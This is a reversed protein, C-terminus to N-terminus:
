GRAGPANMAVVEVEDVLQRIADGFFEAYPMFRSESWWREGNLEFLQGLIVFVGVLVFGRMLGFFLGLFRDTNGFPSHRIVYQLVLGALTGILLVILFVILRAVWVRVGDQALLGGLHPEISPGFNWALWLGLLWTILAIAERMLGRLAGIVCSLVILAVIFWDAGNM